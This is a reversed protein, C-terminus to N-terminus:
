SINSMIQTYQGAPKGTLFSLIGSMSSCGNPLPTGTCVWKYKGQTEMIQSNIRTKSLGKVSHLLVEHGEDVIVRYWRIKKLNIDTQERYKKNELLSISVLVVDANYIDQLTYKKIHAMTSLEIIDFKSLAIPSLYKGIESKWQGVLRRPCYIITAKSDCEKSYMISPTISLKPTIHNISVPKKIQVKIKSRSSKIKIKIKPKPKPSPKGINLPNSLILLIMSLTKGMGM